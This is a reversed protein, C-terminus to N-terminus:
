SDWGPTERRTALPQSEMINLRRWSCYTYNLSLSLIRFSCNVLSNAVLISFQGNCYVAFYTLHAKFCEKDLICKFFTANNFGVLNRSSSM